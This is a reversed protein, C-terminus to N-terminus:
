KGEAESYKHATFFNKGTEKFNDAATSCADAYRCPGDFQPLPLTGTFKRWGSTPPTIEASQVAYLPKRDQGLIWGYSSEGTKNNKHPERSLLCKADNEFVEADHWKKGTPVYLGNADDTGAGTVVICGSSAAAARETLVM